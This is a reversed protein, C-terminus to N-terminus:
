LLTKIRRRTNLSTHLCITRFIIQTKIFRGPSEPMQGINQSPRGPSLTVILIRGRAVQLLVDANEIAFKPTLKQGPSANNDLIMNGDGDPNNPTGPNNVTGSM